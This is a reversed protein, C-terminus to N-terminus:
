ELAYVVNVRVQVRHEGPAVPVAMAAEAAMARGFAQPRPLYAEQESISLVGGLRVGAAAAYLEARHRADAIANRRAADLASRPNEADFRIASISNAGAAVLADILAGLRAPERVRVVVENSARFGSIQPASRAEGDRRFEPRLDLNTTQVDKAPVAHDELADLVKAMAASNAELAEAADAGQTVTGAQFIATDVDAVAEGEGVVSLTREPGQAVAASAFTLTAALVLVRTQVRRM